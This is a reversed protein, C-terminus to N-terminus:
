SDIIKKGRFQPVIKKGGDFSEILGIGEFWRDLFVALAAVESHPQNGISVNYDVLEYVQSPVKESGVIILLDSSKKNEKFFDKLKLGYMTLHVKLGKFDKLLQLPKETFTVDFNGGWSENIKKISNEVDIDKSDFIIKEASFARATLAIHTSLRDDRGYRHGLRLVSVTM